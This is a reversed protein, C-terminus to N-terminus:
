GDQWSSVWSNDPFLIFEHYISDVMASRPLHFARQEVYGRVIAPWQNWGSVPRDRFASRVTGQSGTADWFSVNEAARPGITM